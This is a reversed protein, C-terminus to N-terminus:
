IFTTKLFPRIETWTIVLNKAPWNQENPLSIEMGGELLKVKCDDLSLSEMFDSSPLNVNNDTYHTSIKQKFYERFKKQEKELFMASPQCPEGNELSFLHFENKSEDLDICNFYFHLQIYNTQQVFGYQGICYDQQEYESVISLINENLKKEADASGNFDAIPYILGNSFQGDKFKVEQALTWQFVLLLLLLILKKDLM